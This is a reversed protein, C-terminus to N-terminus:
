GRTGYLKQRIEQELTKETIDAEPFKGIPPKPAEKLLKDRIQKETRKAQLALLEKIETAIAESKAADEGTILEVLPTYEVETLETAALATKALAESALLRYKRAEEEMEKRQEELAEADTQTARKVQSMERKNAELAKEASNKAREAAELQKEAAELRTKLAELETAPEAAAPEAAAPTPAILEVTTTQEVATSGGGGDDPYRFILPKGTIPNVDLCRISNYYITRNTM